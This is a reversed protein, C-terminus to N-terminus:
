INWTEIELDWMEYVLNWMECKLHLSITAYKMYAHEMIYLGCISYCKKEIKEEEINLIGKKMNKMNWIVVHNMNWTVHKMNYIEYAYIEYIECKM